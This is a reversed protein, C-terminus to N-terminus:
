ADSRNTGFSFCVMDQSDEPLGTTQRHRRRVLRDARHDLGLPLLASEGPRGLARGGQGGYRLQHVAPENAGAIVDHEDVRGRGLLVQRSKASGEIAAKPALSAPKGTQGQALAGRLKGVIWWAAVQASRADPYSIACNAVPDNVRRWPSHLIGRDFKSSWHCSRVSQSVSTIVRFAVNVNSPRVISNGTMSPVSPSSARSIESSRARVPRIVSSGPYPLVPAQVLLIVKM